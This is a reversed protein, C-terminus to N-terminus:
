EASDITTQSALALWNERQWHAVPEAHIQAFIEGAIPEVFTVRAVPIGAPFLGGAGSTYLITGVPPAQDIPVFDIQLRDGQGRALAAIPVTKMTVPVALSADLITRVVASNRKAQDVVGVLGESAVIVDDPKASDVLLILHQSMKDPSRGQVRAAHWHYGEIQKIDLLKRLKLNETRLNSLEQQTAALMALQQKTQELEKHLKQSQEFWLTLENWWRGPAQVVSLLPSMGINLHQGVPSQSALVFLVVFLVLWAWGRSVPNKRPAM